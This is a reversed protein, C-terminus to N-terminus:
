EAYLREEKRLRCGNIPKMKGCIVNKQFFVYNEKWTFIM